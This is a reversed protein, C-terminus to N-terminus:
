GSISIRLLSVQLQSMLTEFGPGQRMLLAPPGPLLLSTLEQARSKKAPLERNYPLM